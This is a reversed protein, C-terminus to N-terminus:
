LTGIVKPDSMDEKIKVADYELDKYDENVSELIGRLSNVYNYISKISEDISKILFSYEEEPILEVISNLLGNSELLDYLKAPDEKQKDTFNINTYNYVIELNAFIEVKVPNAYDM